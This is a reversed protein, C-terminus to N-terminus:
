ESRFTKNLFNFVEIVDEQTNFKFIDFNRIEYSGNYNLIKMSGFKEIGMPKPLECAEVKITAPAIRLEYYGQETDRCMDGVSM